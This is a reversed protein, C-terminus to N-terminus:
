PKTLSLTLDPQHQLDARFRRQEGPYGVPNAVLRTDGHQVDVHDHTHGYVWMPAGVAKLIPDSAMVFMVNSRSNKWPESVAAAGPLMHTVILDAPGECAKDLLFDIAQKHLDGIEYTFGEICEVDPWNPYMQVGVKNYWGTTGDIIYDKGEHAITTRDNNLVQVNPYKSAAERYVDLAQAPRLGYYDHNGLVVIVHQYETSVDRFVPEIIRHHAIDGAMVLMPVKHANATVARVYGAREREDRHEAHLDSVLKFKLTM